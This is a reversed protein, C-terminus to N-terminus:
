TNFQNNLNNRTLIRTPTPTIINQNNLRHAPSYLKNMYPSGVAPLNSRRFDMGPPTPLEPNSYAM